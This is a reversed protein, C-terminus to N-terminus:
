HTHGHTESLEDMVLLVVGIELGSALALLLVKDGHQFRGETLYRHLAVFHSTSATNGFNELNIVVHKPGKDGLLQAFKHIARSSTQHPILWDIDRLKLGAGDLATDLLFPADQIAARQIERGKTLMRAGPSHPAPGGLCLRSHESITTFGALAIGPGDASRDVIVAAGADGLTLSALQRSCINRVEDLANTTLSSIFEGSVVMGRRIAGRRIFDNLVFVGTLMGACANGLDFSVARHAGITQKISLSLPPEFQLRYAGSVDGVARAGTDGACSGRAYHTISTCVVMDLDEAGYRSRALCDRAAGVALSLSDEDGSCVRAEHIGTLRELDINTRHRTKAMLERSTRRHEPLKVGVSEFRAVHGNGRSSPGEMLMWPSPPTMDASRQPADGRGLMTSALVPDRLAHMSTAHAMVHGLRLLEGTRKLLRLVPEASRLGHNRPALRELQEVRGHLGRPNGLVCQRAAVLVVGRGVIGGLAIRLEDGKNQIERAHEAAVVEPEVDLADLVDRGLPRDQEDAVVVPAENRGIREEGREGDAIAEARRPGEVRKRVVEDEVVQRQAPEREPEAHKPGPV